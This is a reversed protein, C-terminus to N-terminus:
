RYQTSLESKSVSNSAKTCILVSRPLKNQQYENSDKPLLILVQWVWVRLHKSTYDSERCPAFMIGSWGCFTLKNPGVLSKKLRSSTCIRPDYFEIFWGRTNRFYESGNNCWKNSSTFKARILVRLSCGLAWFFELATKGKDHCSFKFTTKGKDHCNM